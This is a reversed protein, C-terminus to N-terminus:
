FIQKDRLTVCGGESPLRTLRLEHTQWETVAQPTLHDLSLLDYSPTTGADGM